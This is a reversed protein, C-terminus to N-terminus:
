WRRRLADHTGDQLRRVVDTARDQRTSARKASTVTYALARRTGPKLTDWVSQAAASRALAQSLEDGLDVHDPDPDPSLSVEVLDGAAVGLEALRARSLAIYCFGEGSRHMALRFPRGNLTGVIRRVKAARLPDSIEAPLPLKHPTMGGRVLLVPSLFEHDYGM